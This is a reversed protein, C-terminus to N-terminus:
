AIVQPAPEPLRFLLHGVVSSNDLRVWLHEPCVAARVNEAKNSEAWERITMALKEPNRTCDLVAESPRPLRRMDDYAEAMESESIVCPQTSCNLMQELARLASFDIGDSFAVYLSRSNPLYHVLAMQSSEMIPLPAMAACEAFGAAQAMHFVPIGWQIGLATTLQEETVIGEQRLWEGLRGKQSERQAKLAEQLHQSSILGKSLMLLGLPLRYRVSKGREAKLSLRAFASAAGEEFCEPSCYWGGNLSLGAPQRFARKWFGGGRSCQSNQCHKSQSRM